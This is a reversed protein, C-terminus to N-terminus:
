FCPSHGSRPNDALWNPNRPHCVVAPVVDRLAVFRPRVMTIAPEREGALGGVGFRGRFDSPMASNFPERAHVGGAGGKAWVEYAVGPRLVRDIWGKLVAPPNAIILTGIGAGGIIIFETPQWLVALQGHHLVYGGIVSGFVVIMGIIVFM